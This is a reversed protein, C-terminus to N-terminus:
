CASVESSLKHPSSFPRKVKQKGRRDEKMDMLKRRNVEEPLEPKEPSHQSALSRQSLERLRLVAMGDRALARREMRARPRLPSSFDTVSVTGTFLAQTILLVEVYKMNLQSIGPFSEEASLCTSGSCLRNIVYIDVYFPWDDTDFAALMDARSETDFNPGDLAEQLLAVRDRLWKRRIQGRFVRKM